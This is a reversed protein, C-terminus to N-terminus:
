RVPLIGAGARSFLNLGEASSTKVALGALEDNCKVTSDIALLNPLV